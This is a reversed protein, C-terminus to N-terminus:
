RVLKYSEEFINSLGNLIISESSRFSGKIRQQDSFIIDRLDSDVCGKWDTLSMDNLQGEM